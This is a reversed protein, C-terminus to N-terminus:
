SSKRDNLEKLLNRKIKGNETRPISDVFIIREPYQHRDLKQRSLNMIEEKVKERNPAATKKDDPVVCAVIFSRRHDQTLYSAADRVYESSRLIKDVEELSFKEGAIDAMDDKRGVIYLFGEQDFYGMDGTYLWGERFREQTFAPNKWYGEVTHPGRICVEGTKDPLLSKGHSGMIRISVNPAPKGVSNLKRPYLNYHMFSSRSAETLGYYTFFHTKPLHELILRTTAPPMSGTNTCIMRLCEGTKAFDKLFHRTLLDLTFPTAAFFTARYKLIDQLVQKLNTGADSIVVTGGVAFITHVNGLGFSHYFPLLAYYIDDFNPKLYEIINRTASTVVSHTLRVAKQASTTGSTFMVASFKGSKPKFKKVRAASIKINDPTIVSFQAGTRKRLEQWRPLFKQSTIIYRPNATSIQFLLNEDSSRLSLPMCILGGGIIGFYSILWDDSNEMFLGAVEGNKCLSSFFVAIKKAATFVDAYIRRREKFVIATKEPFLAASHELFYFVSSGTM